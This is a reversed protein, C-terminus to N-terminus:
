KSIGATQRFIIGGNIIAAEVIYICKWFICARWDTQKDNVQKFFMLSYNSLIFRLRILILNLDIKFNFDIQLDHMKTEVQSLEFNWYAKKWIKQLKVINCFDNFNTFVPQDFILNFGFDLLSFWSNLKCVWLKDFLMSVKFKWLCFCFHM